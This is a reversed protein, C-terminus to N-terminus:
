LTIDNARCQGSVGSFSCRILSSRRLSMFGVAMRTLVLRPPNTSSSASACARLEFTIAPAPRSTSEASGGDDPFGSSVALLQWMVGCIAQAVEAARLLSIDTM